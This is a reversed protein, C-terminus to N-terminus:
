ISITNESFSFHTPLQDMVARTYMSVTCVDLNNIGSELPNITNGKGASKNAWYIENLSKGDVKTGVPSSKNTGPLLRTSRAM